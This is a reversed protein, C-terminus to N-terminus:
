YDYGRYNEECKTSGYAVRTHVDILSPKVRWRPDNKVGPFLTSCCVITVM